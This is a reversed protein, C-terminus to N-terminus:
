LGTDTDEAVPSIDQDTYVYSSRIRKLLEAPREHLKKDETHLKYLIEHKAAGAVYGIALDVNDQIWAPTFSASSDVTLSTLEVPVYTLDAQYTRAFQEKPLPFIGATHGDTGVGFIFIIKINELNSIESFFLEEIRLAFEKAAEDAKAATDLLKSAAYSDPYLATLQLYNNITPEGSVREDGMMFITRCESKQCETSAQCSEHFCKRRPEIHPVISLASGGSLLCIIDGQHDEIVKTIHEGAEKAPDTTIVIQSM